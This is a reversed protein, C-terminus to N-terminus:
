IHKRKRKDFAAILYILFPLIFCCGLMLAWALTSLASAAGHWNNDLLSISSGDKLTLIFPFHGATGAVLMLAIEIAALIRNFKLKGKNINIFIIIWLLVSLGVSIGGIPNGFLWYMIPLKQYIGVAFVLIVSSLVFIMMEKSKKVLIKVTSEDGTVQADHTAFISALYACCACTFIGLSVNFLTLWSDIYGEKFNTPHLTMSGSVASGALIGLFLPTLFSSYIFIKSYIGEWNDDVVDYHRFTYSTGRAIIGLLMLILPIHQYTSMLSYLQPFGVFMIVIFIILWMHNAEWVPGMTSDMVKQVENREKRSRTLMELIGAGFDAGGFLLYFCISLWLFGIVIYLM